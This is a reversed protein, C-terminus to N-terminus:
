QLAAHDIVLGPDTAHQAILLVNAGTMDPLALGVGTDVEVGAAGVSGGYAPGSSGAGRDVVVVRSEDGSWFPQVNTSVAAATMAVAAHGALASFLGGQTPTLTVGVINSKQNSMSVSLVNDSVKLSNAMAITSTYLSFTGLLPDAVTQLILHEGVGDWFMSNPDVNSAVATVASTSLSFANISWSPANGSGANADGPAYLTALGNRITTITVYTFLGNVTPGGSLFSGTTPYGDSLVIRAPAAKPSAVLHNVNNTDRDVVLLHSATLPVYMASTANTLALPVSGTTGDYATLHGAVSGSGDHFYMVNPDMLWSSAAVGIPNWSGATSGNATSTVWELTPTTTAYFARTHSINTWSRGTAYNALKTITPTAADTVQVIFNGNATENTVLTRGGTLALIRPTSAGLGNADLPVLTGSSGVAWANVGGQLDGGFAVSGDLSVGFWALNQGSNPDAMVAAPTVPSASAATAVTYLRTVNPMVSTDVALWAATSADLSLTWRGGPAPSGSLPVVVGDGATGSAPLNLITLPTPGGPATSAYGCVRYDRSCRLNNTVDLGVPASTLKHSQTGDFLVLNATNSTTDLTNGYAFHLVDFPDNFADVVARVYSFVSDTGSPAGGFLKAANAQLLTSSGQSLDISYLDYTYVGNTDHQDIDFQTNPVFTWHGYWMGGFISSSRARALLPTLTGDAVKVSWQSWTNDTDFNSVGLYAYQDWYFSYYIISLQTNVSALPSSGGSLQKPLASSANWYYLDGTSSGNTVGTSTAFLAATSTQSQMWRLGSVFVDTTTHAAGSNTQVTVVDELPLGQGDTHSNTGILLGAQDPTMYLTGTFGAALLTATGGTSATVYWDTQGTSVNNITFVLHTGDPSFFANGAWHSTLLTAASGGTTDLWLMQNGDNLAVHRHDASIIGANAATGKGVVTGSGDAEAVVELVSDVSILQQSWDPSTSIWTITHGNITTTSRKLTVDPITYSGSEGVTVNHVTQSVYGNHAFTADYVGAPVNAINYSGDNASTAMGASGSLTVTSGAANATDFLYVHGTVGGKPTMKLPQLDLEGAMAVQGATVTVATTASQYGPYQAEITVAGPAVDAIAYNGADDTIAAGGGLIGVVIGSNGSTAGGLTAVGKIAGTTPSPTMTQGGKDNNSCGAIVGLALLLVSPLRRM